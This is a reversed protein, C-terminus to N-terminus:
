RRGHGAHTRCRTWRLGTRSNPHVAVYKANVPLADAMERRGDARAQRVYRSWPNSCWSRNAGTHPLKPWYVAESFKEVPIPQGQPVRLAGSETLQVTRDIAAAM